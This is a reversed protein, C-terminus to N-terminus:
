FDEEFEADFDLALADISDDATAAIERDKSKAFKNLLDFGNEPQLFGVAQICALLLPEQTRRHHLKRSIAPWAKKIEWHAAALVAEAQIDLNKDDLSELIEEELGKIFRM